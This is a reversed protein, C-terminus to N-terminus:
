RAHGLRVLDAVIRAALVGGPTRDRNALWRRHLAAYGEDCYRAIAPWTIFGPRGWMVARVGLEDYAYALLAHGGWGGVSWAGTVGTSIDWYSSGQWAVPLNMGLAAGGLLHISAKIHERFRVKNDVDLEVFGAIVGANRFWRAARLMSAGSSPTPAIALHAWNVMETTVETPSSTHEAAIQDLHGFEACTCNPRTDNDFVDFGIHGVREIEPTAVAALTARSGRLVGWNDASPIPPLDYAALQLTRPDREREAKGLERVIV